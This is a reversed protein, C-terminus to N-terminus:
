VYYCTSPVTANSGCKLERVKMLSKKAVEVQLENRLRDVNACSTCIGETYRPSYDEVTNTCYRCTHKM